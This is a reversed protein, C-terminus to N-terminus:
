KTTNTESISLSKMPRLESETNLSSNFSSTYLSSEPMNEKKREKKKNRDEIRDNGYAHLNIEAVFNDFKVM